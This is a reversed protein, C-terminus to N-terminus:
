AGLESLKRDAEASARQRQALTRGLPSPASGAGAQVPASLREFFRQLAERSTCRTAGIQISELVVGRCGATAWRYITSVHTKRGRRRRPLEEAAQALTVVSECQSDIM